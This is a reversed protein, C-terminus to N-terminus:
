GCRVDFAWEPGLNKATTGTTDVDTTDTHHVAAPAVMAEAKRGVVAVSPTRSPGLPVAARLVTATNNQQQNTPTHRKM